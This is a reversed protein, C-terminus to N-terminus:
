NKLLDIVSSFAETINGRITVHRLIDNQSLYIMGLLML